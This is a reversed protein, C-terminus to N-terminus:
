AASSPMWRVLQHYLSPWYRRLWVVQGYRSPAGTPLWWSKRVRWPENACFGVCRYVPLVDIDRSFLYAFVDLGSWDSLPACIWQWSAKKYLPGRSCRNARRGNSEEARLGLMIGGFDRGYAEVVGYFCEKSLRATRSHMDDTVDHEAGHKRMWEAPSVPPALVKLDLGWSRALSEVYEREGPFDLDDKESAVALGLGMEICVLHTMATSDKGGSWMVCWSGTRNLAERITAKAQEVRRRHCSLGSHVLATRRWMEWIRLDAASLRPETTPDTM